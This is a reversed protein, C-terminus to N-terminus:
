NSHYDLVQVDNAEGNEFRFIVRYQNNVRVSLFGKLDGALRELRNGPPSLLDDVTNAHNIADLKRRVVPWLSQPIKRAQRTKTGNFLDQTVDDKFSKIVLRGYTCGPHRALPNRTCATSDM